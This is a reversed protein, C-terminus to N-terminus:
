SLPLFFFHSHRLTKLIPAGDTEELQFRLHLQFMTLAKGGFVSLLKGVCVRMCVCM